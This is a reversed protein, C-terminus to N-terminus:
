VISPISTTSLRVRIGPSCVSCVCPTPSLTGNAFPTISTDIADVGADIAAYYTTVGLGATEHTHLIVPIKVKSKLGKVIAYAAQPPILGAMDKICISDCGMEAIQLGQKIFAETTHVPSTTYCITGQAHKGAKHAAKVATEINRMDNLADFIRFIDMGHRGSCVVFAEVVDDPFNAYQVINQGRLLMM